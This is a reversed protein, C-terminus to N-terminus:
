YNSKQGWLRSMQGVNQFSQCQGYRKFPLHYPKQIEYTHEKHCSREISVKFESMMAWHISNPCHHGVKSNAENLPCKQNMVCIKKIMHLM